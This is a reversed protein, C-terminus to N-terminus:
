GHGSRLVDYGIIVRRERVWSPDAKIGDTGISAQHKFLLHLGAQEANATSVKAHVPDGHDAVSVLLADIRRFRAISIYHADRDCSQGHAAARTARGGVSSM